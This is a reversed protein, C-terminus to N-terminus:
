ATTETSVSAAGTKGTKYACDAVRDASRPGPNDTREDRNEPLAAAPDAHRADAVAPAAGRCDHDLDRGSLASGSLHVTQCRGQPLAALTRVSRGTWIVGWVGGGFFGSVDLSMQDEGKDTRGFAESGGLM